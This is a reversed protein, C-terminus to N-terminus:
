SCRNILVVRQKYVWGAFSSVDHNGRNEGNMKKTWTLNPFQPFLPSLSREHSSAGQLWFWRPSERPKTNGWIPIILTSPFLWFGKMTQFRPGEWPQLLPLLEEWQCRPSHKYAVSLCVTEHIAHNQKNPKFVTNCDLFILSGVDYHHATSPKCRVAPSTWDNCFWCSMSILTDIDHSIMAQLSVTRASGVRGTVCLWGLSDDQNNGCHAPGLFVFVKNRQVSSKRERPM